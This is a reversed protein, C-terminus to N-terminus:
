VVQAPEQEIGSSGHRRCEDRMKGASGLSSLGEVVGSQQQNPVCTITRSGDIVVKARPILLALLTGVIAMVTMIGILTLGVVGNWGIRASSDLIEPRYIHQSALSFM